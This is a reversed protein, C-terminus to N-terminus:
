FEDILGIIEDGHFLLESKCADQAIQRKYNKNVLERYSVPLVFFWLQPAILLVLWSHFDSKSTKKDKLFARLHVGFVIFAVILYWILVQRLM